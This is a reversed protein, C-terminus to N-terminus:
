SILKEIQYIMVNWVFMYSVFMFIYYIIWQKNNFDYVDNITVFSVITLYTICSILLFRKRMSLKYTNALYLSIVNWVGFWLPALLSYNFYSYGPRKLKDYGYFFPAFILLSSGIVFQKLYKM